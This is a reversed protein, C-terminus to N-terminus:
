RFQPPPDPEEVTVQQFRRAFAKDKEIYKVYEDRTTAGIVKVLGRAMEPKLINAADLSGGGGILLHIEDIFLVVNPDTKM